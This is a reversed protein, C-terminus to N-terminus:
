KKNNIEGRRELSSSQWFEISCFPISMLKSIHINFNDHLKQIEKRGEKKCESSTWREFKDM